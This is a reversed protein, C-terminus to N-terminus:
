PHSNCTRPRPGASPGGGLRGPASGRHGRQGHQALRAPHDPVIQQADVEDPTSAPVEGAPEGTRPDYSIDATM